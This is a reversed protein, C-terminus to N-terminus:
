FEPTLDIALNRDKFKISEDKAIVGFTKFESQYYPSLYNKIVKKAIDIENSLLKLEKLGAGDPFMIEILDNKTVDIPCDTWDSAGSDLGCIDFCKDNVMVWAHEIYDGLAAQMPFGYMENLAMALYMCSGSMYISELKDKDDLTVVDEGININPNPLPSKDILWKNSNAFYAISFYDATEHLMWEVEARNDPHETNIISNLFTTTPKRSFGKCNVHKNDYDLFNIGLPLDIQDYLTDNHINNWSKVAINKTQGDRASMIFKNNLGAYQAIADYLLSGCKPYAVVGQVELYIDDYPVLQASAVFQKETTYLIANIRSDPTDNCKTFAINLKM